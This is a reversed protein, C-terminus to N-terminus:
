LGTRWTEMFQDEVDAINITEIGNFIAEHFYSSTALDYGTNFSLGTLIFFDSHRFEVTIDTLSLNCFWVNM